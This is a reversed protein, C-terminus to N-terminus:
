ITDPNQRGILRMIEVTDVIIRYYIATRSKGKRHVYRRYGPKIHDVPSFAYPNNAILEFLDFISDYFDDAQKEGHRKVGYNYIDQMDDQAALNIKYQAM